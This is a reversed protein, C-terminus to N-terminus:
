FCDYSVNATLMGFGSSTFRCMVRGVPDVSMVGCNLNQDTSLSNWPYTANSAWATPISAYQTLESQADTNCELTVTGVVRTGDLYLACDKPTGTGGVLQSAIDYFVRGSGGRIVDAILKATTAAGASNPHRDTDASGAPWYSAWNADSLWALSDWVSRVGCATAGRHIPGIYKRGKGNITNANTMTKFHSYIMTVQANPFATQFAKFHTECASSTPVTTDNVNNVGCLIVVDTVDNRQDNSMSSIASQLQAYTNNAISCVNSDGFMAGSVAFNEYGKLSGLADKVMEGIGLGSGATPACWSDGFMVLHRKYLSMANTNATSVAHQLTETTEQIKDMQNQLAGVQAETTEQIKDMQNQLAGVQANFSAVPIWYKTDTLPTGAPVDKKAVYGQGFGASSVLTLYEYSTEASWIIPDAPVIVTRPGTQQIGLADKLINVDCTAMDVM